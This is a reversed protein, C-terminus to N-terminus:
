SLFFSYLSSLFLIGCYLSDLFWSRCLALIEPDWPTTEAYNVKNPLGSVVCIWTTQSIGGKEVDGGSRVPRPTPYREGLHAQRLRHLKDACM